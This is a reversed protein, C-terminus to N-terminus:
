NWELIQWNVVCSINAVGTTGTNITIQTDSTFAYTAGYRQVSSNTDTGRYNIIVLCKAQNVAAISIIAAGGSSLDATAIGRQVNKFMSPFLGAM